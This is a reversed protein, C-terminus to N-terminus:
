NKAVNERSEIFSSVGLTINIKEKECSYYM